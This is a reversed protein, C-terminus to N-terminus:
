WLRRFWLGLNSGRHVLVLFCLAPFLTLEVILTVLGMLKTTHTCIQLYINCTFAVLLSVVAMSFSLVAFFYKTPIARRFQQEKYPSIVLSMFLVLATTAFSLGIVYSHSFVKFAPRDFFEPDDSKEKEGPISFSSAFVVAAVLSACLRSTETLNKQCNALMGKHTETFTERATKDENDRNNKLEKPIMEEILEFWELEDKMQVAGEEEEVALKESVFHLITKQTGPEVNSLMWSPLIPDNWDFMNKIHKVIKKRRYKIAVQLVNRGAPDCFTASQPYIDLIKIVYEDLGMKAGLTVPQEDWRRDSENSLKSTSQNDLPQNLPPKVHKSPSDISSDKISGGKGFFDFYNPSVFYEVLQMVEKHNKKYKELRQIKSSLYYLVSDLLGLVLQSRFAEPITVMLQFPTVAIDNRSTIQAPYQKAIELALAPANAMIACHLMTAGDERRDLPSAGLLVLLWFMDRQGNLVAKHLPTETKKNVQKVLYKNKNHLAEAVRCNGLTAAVHLATDEDYNKANILKEAEMKDIIKIAMDTKGKAIVVSLLPDNMLNVSQDPGQTVRILSDYDDHRIHYNVKRFLKVDLDHPPEDDSGNETGKPEVMEPDYDNKLTEWAEKSSLADKIIPFIETSVGQQIYLLARADDRLDNEASPQKYGVQVLKWLGQSKFLNKMQISWYDYAEGDFIPVAGAQRYNFVISSSPTKSPLQPQTIDTLM